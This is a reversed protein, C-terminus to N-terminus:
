SRQASEAAAVTGVCEDVKDVVVAAAINKAAYAGAKDAVAAAVATSGGSAV